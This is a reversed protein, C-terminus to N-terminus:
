KEYKKVRRLDRLLVITRKRWFARVGGKYFPVHDLEVIAGQGRVSIITGYRGQLDSTLNSSFSLRVREGVMPPLIRKWNEEDKRM